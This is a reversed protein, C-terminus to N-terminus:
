PPVHHFGASLSIRTGPALCSLVCFFLILRTRQGWMSSVTHKAELLSFFFVLPIEAPILPSTRLHIWKKGKGGGVIKKRWITVKIMSIKGNAKKGVFSFIKSIVSEFFSLKGYRIKTGTYEYVPSFISTLYSFIQARGLSSSTKKFISTVSRKSFISQNVSLPCFPRFAKSHVCLSHPPKKYTQIPDHSLTKLYPFINYLM